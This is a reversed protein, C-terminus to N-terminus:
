YRTSGRLGKSAIRDVGRVKGPVLRAQRAAYRRSL